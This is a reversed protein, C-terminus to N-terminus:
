LPPRKFIDLVEIMRASLNGAAKKRGDTGASWRHQIGGPTAEWILNGPVGPMRAVAGQIDEAMQMVILPPIPDWGARYSIKINPSGSEVPDCTLALKGAYAKPWVYDDRYISETRTGVDAISVDDLDIETGCIEISDISVIPWARTMLFCDGDGYHHESVYDTEDLKFGIWDEIAMQYAAILGAARTPDIVLTPQYVQLDALAIPM